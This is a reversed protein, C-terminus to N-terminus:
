NFRHEFNFSISDEDDGDKDASFKEIEFFIGTTQSTFISFGLQITKGEDTTDDGSNIVYKGHLGAKLDFYYDVEVAIESNTEDDINDLREYGIEVGVYRNNSIPTLIRYNAGIADDESEGIVTGDVKFESEAQSVHVEAASRNTLYYGINLTTQDSEIDVSSGSVSDDIDFLTYAVGFTFPTSQEAFTYAVVIANGDVDVGSFDFEALGFAGIINSQRELFYAEAYPGKNLSVPKFYYALGGLILTTEVDSDDDSNEYIGAISYQYSDSAQVSVPIILVVLLIVKFCLKSTVSSSNKM